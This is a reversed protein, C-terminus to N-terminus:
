VGREKGTHRTPSPDERWNRTSAMSCGGKHGVGPSSKGPVSPLQQRNEPRCILAWGWGIYECGESGSDTGLMHSKKRPVSLMKSMLACQGDPRYADLSGRKTINM